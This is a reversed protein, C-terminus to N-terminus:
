TRWAMTPRRGAVAKFKEKIENVIPKSPANESDSQEQACIRKKPPLHKALVSKRKIAQRKMNPSLVQPENKSAVPAKVKAAQRKSKVEKPPIRREETPNPPPRRRIEVVQQPRDRHFSPHHFAGKYRLFCHPMYCMLPHDSLAISYIDTTWYYKSESGISKSAM